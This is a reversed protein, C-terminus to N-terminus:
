RDYVGAMDHVVFIRVMDLSLDLERLIKRELLKQITPRAWEPLEQITKYRVEEVEEIPVIGFFEFISDALVQASEPRRNRLMDIENPNPSDIFGLEPLVATMMTNRLVGIFPHRTETELMVGNARRVPFNFHRGMKNSAIEALRRSDALNRRPNNPSATPIITEFGIGRERQNQTPNVFGGANVHLSVMLDAGWENPREFRRVLDTDTRRALMVELGQAQLLPELLLAIDLVIDSERMGNGVAGPDRGGHGPEIYIKRSM